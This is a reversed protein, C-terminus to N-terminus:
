NQSASVDVVMLGHPNLPTRPVQRLAVKVSLPVLPHSTGDPAISMRSVVVLVEPVPTWTLMQTQPVIGKDPDDVIKSSYGHNVQDAREALRFAQKAVGQTSPDVQRLAQQLRDNVDLPNYDFGQRVFQLAFGRLEAEDRTDGEHLFSRPDAQVVQGLNDKVFVWPLRRATFVSVVGLAVALIVNVTVSALLVWRQQTYAALLRGWGLIFRDEKGVKLHKEIAAVRVSLDDAAEGRKPEM